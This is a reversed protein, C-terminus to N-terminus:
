KKKASTNPPICLRENSNFFVLHFNCRRQRLNQLFAEVEYVAHLLQFGGIFDKVQQFYSAFYGIRGDFDLDPNEFCRLLLSDGEVIFLESGAYDGVLDVRRTSLKGYRLSM